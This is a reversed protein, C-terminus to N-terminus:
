IDLDMSCNLDIDTSNNNDRKEEEVIEDEKDKLPVIMDNIKQPPQWLVLATCPKEFRALLVKPILPEDQQLKKIEDCITIRNANKLKEELDKSTMPIRYNSADSDMSMDPSVISAGSNDSSNVNHTIYNSSIHLGSLHAAMKEETIFHKTPLLPVDDSKRKNHSTFKKNALDFQSATFEMLGNYPSVTWPMAEANWPITPPTPMLHAADAFPPSKLQSM